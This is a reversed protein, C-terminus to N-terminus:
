PELHPLRDRRVVAYHPWDTTDDDWTWLIGLYNNDPFWNRALAWLSTTAVDTFDDRQDPEITGHRVIRPQDLGHPNKAIKPGILEYHGAQDPDFHEAMTPLDGLDGIATRLSKPAEALPKWTAKTGTQAPGFAWGSSPTYRLTRGLHLPSPTGHEAVWDVAVEPTYTGDTDITFVDPATIM